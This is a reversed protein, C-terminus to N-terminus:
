KYRTMLFFHAVFHASGSEYNLKLWYWTDPCTCKLNFNHSLLSFKYYRIPSFFIRHFTLLKKTTILIKGRGIIKGVLILVSWFNEDTIKEGSYFGFLPFRLFIILNIIDYDPQTANLLSPYNYFPFKRRSIM